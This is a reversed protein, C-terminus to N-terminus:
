CEEFIQRREVLEFTAVQEVDELDRAAIARAGGLDEADISAREIAHDLAVLLQPEKVEWDLIAVFLCLVSWADKRAKQAKKTAACSNGHTFRSANVRLGVAFSEAAQPQYSTTSGARKM